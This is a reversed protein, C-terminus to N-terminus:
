NKKGGEGFIKVRDAKGDSGVASYIGGTLYHIDSSFSLRPLGSLRVIKHRFCVLPRVYAPGKRNYLMKRNRNIDM